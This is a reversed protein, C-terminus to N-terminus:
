TRRLQDLRHYWYGARDPVAPCPGSSHGAPLGCPAGAPRGVAM